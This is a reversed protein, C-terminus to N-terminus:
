SEEESDEDLDLYTIMFDVTVNFSFNEVADPSAWITLDKAAYPLFFVGTPFQSINEVYSEGSSTYRTRSYSVYRKKLTNSVSIDSRTGKMCLGYDRCVANSYWSVRKTLGYISTGGFDSADSEETSIGNLASLSSDSESIPYYMYPNIIIFNKLDETALHKAYGTCEQLDEQFVGTGGYEPGAEESATLMSTIYGSDDEFIPLDHSVSLIKCDIVKKDKFSFYFQEPIARTGSFVTSSFTSGEKLVAGKATSNSIAFLATKIFFNYKPIIYSNFYGLAEERGYETYDVQFTYSQKEYKIYQSLETGVAAYYRSLADFNRVFNEDIYEKLTELSVCTSM